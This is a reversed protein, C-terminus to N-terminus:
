GPIEFFPIGMSTTPTGNNSRILNWFCSCNLEQIKCSAEFINLRCLTHDGMSLPTSDKKRSLAAFCLLAFCQRVGGLLCNKHLLCWHLYGFYLPMALQSLLSGCKSNTISTHVQVAFHLLKQHFDRYGVRVCIIIVKKNFQKNFQKNINKNNNNNMCWCKLQARVQLSLTEKLSKHSPTNFNAIM